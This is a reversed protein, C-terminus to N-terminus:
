MFQYEFNCFIISKDHTEYLLTNTVGHLAMETISEFSLNCFLFFAEHTMTEGQAYPNAHTIVAFVLSM